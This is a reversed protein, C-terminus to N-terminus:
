QHLCSNFSNSGVNLQSHKGRVGAQQRVNNPFINATQKIKGLDFSFNDDIHVM